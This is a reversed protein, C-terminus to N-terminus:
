FKNWFWLRGFIVTLNYKGGTEILTGMSVIYMFINIQIDKNQMRDYSFYKLLILLLAEM